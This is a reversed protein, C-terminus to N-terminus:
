GDNDVTLTGVAAMNLMAEDVTDLYERPIFLSFFTVGVQKLEIIADVLGVGILIAEGVQSSVVSDLEDEGLITLGDTDIRDGVSNLHVELGVGGGRLDVQFEVTNGTHDVASKDVHATAHNVVLVDISFAVVYDVQAIKGLTSVKDADGVVLEAFNLLQNNALRQVDNELSKEPPICCHM